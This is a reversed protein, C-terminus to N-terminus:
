GTSSVVGSDEPASPIRVFRAAIAGLVVLGLPYACLYVRFALGTREGPDEGSYYGFFVGLSALALGSVVGNLRGFVGFASLFLGERRTGHRAADADLVRAVVLDHTAMMGAWGAGLVVGAGIATALTPAMLLLALGAALVVFAWRWARLAGLRAIVQAWVALGAAAVVIVAGQLAFAYAVPLGLTHRVYLQVGSLVLGLAATYCAGTLGVSWFQRTRLIQLVARGLRPRELASHRPDERAGLAMVVIVVVAIVGYLLATRSFGETGHESGLWSTTLIPTLALSVIMAILQFGQRLANAVARRREGPFLEPLLAGYNANLMSDMLECLIAFVAFWLVLATGDLAAPPSFLAIMSAALLPAGVLLWPRRRGFRSRTRDSLHGLLPNDLADIIAYVIMVAAYARVDLGLEDVYFLVTSGKIFNIPISTGFMGLAYRWPLTPRVAPVDSPPEAAPVPVPLSTM